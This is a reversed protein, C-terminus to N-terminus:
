RRRARSRRDSKRIPVRGATAIAAQDLHRERDSKLCRVATDIRYRVGVRLQSYGRSLPILFRKRDKDGIVLASFRLIPLTYVFSAERMREAHKEYNYRSRSRSQQLSLSSLVWRNQWHLRVSGVLGFDWNLIYVWGSFLRLPLEITPLDEPSSSILPLRAVVGFTTPPKSIPLYGPQARTREIHYSRFSRRDADAKLLLDAMENLQRRFSSIRPPRGSLPEVSDTLTGKKRKPM